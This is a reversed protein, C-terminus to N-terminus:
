AQSGFIIIIIVAPCGPREAVDEAVELCWYAQWPFMNGAKRTNVL